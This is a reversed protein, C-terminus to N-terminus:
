IAYKRLLDNITSLHAVTDAPLPDPNFHMVANRVARIKNIRAVFTARDLPLGLKSWLVPNELVRQYDGMAMDDHSKIRNGSPDCAAIVEAISVKRVIARRLLRDLDGILIFPNAM